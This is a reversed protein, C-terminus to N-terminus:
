KNNSHAVEFTRPVLLKSFLLLELCDLFRVDEFVNSSKSFSLQGRTGMKKGANSKEEQSTREFFEFLM